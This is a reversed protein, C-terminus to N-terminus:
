QVVKDPAIRGPSWARVPLGNKIWGAGRPGGTMGESVDIVTSYGARKIESILAASRNGSACILAVPKTKSGGTATALQSFFLDPAQNMSIAFGSVPVGSARWEADTRIDVLVVDGSQAAAHADRPSLITPFKPIPSQAVPLGLAPSPATQASVGGQACVLGFLVAAAASLHLKWDDLMLGVECAKCRIGPM